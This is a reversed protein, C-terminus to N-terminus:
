KSRKEKKRKQKQKRESKKIDRSIEEDALQGRGSEQFPTKPV